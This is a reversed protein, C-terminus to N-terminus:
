EILIESVKHAYKGAWRKTVNACLSSTQQNKQSELSWGGIPFVGLLLQLSGWQSDKRIAGHSGLM